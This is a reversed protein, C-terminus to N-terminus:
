RDTLRRHRARDRRAALLRRVVDRVMETSRLEHEWVRMVRFGRRRLQREIHRARAANLMLKKMWYDRNTAPTTRRCSPCRHWFCGDIFVAIKDDSFVFDPLGPVDAPHMLWGRIENRVLASRFRWETSRNGKSRVLAMRRSRQEPTLTDM